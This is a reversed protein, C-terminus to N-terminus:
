SIGTAGKTNCFFTASAVHVCLIPNPDIIGSPIFPRCAFRSDLHLLVLLLIWLDSFIHSFLLFLINDFDSFTGREKQMLRKRLSDDRPTEFCGDIEVNM